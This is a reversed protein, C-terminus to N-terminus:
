GYIIDGNIETSFSSLFGKEFNLSFDAKNPQVGIDFEPIAFTTHIEVNTTSFYESEYFVNDNQRFKVTVQVRDIRKIYQRLAIINIAEEKVTIYLDSSDYSERIYSVIKEKPFIFATPDTGIIIELLEM